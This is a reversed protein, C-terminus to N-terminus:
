SQQILGARMNSRAFIRQPFDHVWDLNSHSSGLKGQAKQFYIVEYVKTNKNFYVVLSYFTETRRDFFLPVRRLDDGLDHSIAFLKGDQSLFPTNHKFYSNSYNLPYPSFMEILLSPRRWSSIKSLYDPVRRSDHLVWMPWGHHSLFPSLSSMMTDCFTKQMMALDDSERAEKADDKRKQEAEELREREVRALLDAVKKKEINASSLFSFCTRANPAFPADLEPAQITCRRGDSYTPFSSSRPAGIDLVPPMYETMLMISM